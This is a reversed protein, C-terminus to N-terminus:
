SSSATTVAVTLLYGVSHFFHNVDDVLEAYNIVVM